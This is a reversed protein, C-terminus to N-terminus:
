LEDMFEKVATIAQGCAKEYIGLLYELQKIKNYLM